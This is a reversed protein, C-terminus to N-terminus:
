YLDMMKLVFHMMNVVFNMVKVESGRNQGNHQGVGPFIHALKSGFDDNPFVHRPQYILSSRPIHIDLGAASDRPVDPFSETYMSFPTPLGRTIAM